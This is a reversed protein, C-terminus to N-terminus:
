GHEPESKDFQGSAGNIRSPRCQTLQEKSTGFPLPQVKVLTAGSLDPPAEKTPCIIRWAALFDEQKFRLGLGERGKVLGLRGATQKSLSTLRPIDGETWIM